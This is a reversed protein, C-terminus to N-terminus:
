SKDGKAEKFRLAGYDSIILENAKSGPLTPEPAIRIGFNLTHLDHVVFNLEKEIQSIIADTEAAYKTTDGIDLTKIKEMECITNYKNVKKIIAFKTELSTGKVKNTVWYENDIDQTGRKNLAIKYVSTKLAEPFFCGRCHGMAPKYKVAKEENYTGPNGTMEVTGALWANLMVYKSPISAEIMSNVFEGMKDFDNITATYEEPIVYPENLSLSYTNLCVQAYFVTATLFNLATIMQPSLKFNPDDESKQILAAESRLHSSLELIKNQFATMEDLTFKITLNKLSKLKSSGLKEVQTVQSIFKNENEKVSIKDTFMADLIKVANTIYDMCGDTNKFMMIAVPTAQTYGPIQSPIKGRDEALHYKAMDYFLKSTKLTYTGDGNIQTVLTSTYLEVPPITDVSSPDLPMTVKRKKFTEVNFNKRFELHSEALEAATKTSEATKGRLKNVIGTIVKGLRDFIGFLMKFISQALKKLGEGLNKLATFGEGEMFLSLCEEQNDCYELVTFTKNYYGFLNQLVIQDCEQVVNDINDISYLLENNLEKLTTM